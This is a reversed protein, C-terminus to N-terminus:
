GPRGDAPLARPPVPSAVVFSSTTQGLVIFRDLLEELHAMSAVHLKLLFCDEGSIRDCLVVEPVRGALEAVNPLQGPAPRIRVWAALPLGVAEPAVEVRHRLVGAEQLRGVREAVAPPSLSVRRGLEAFSLRPEAVLERILARNVEDLLASVSM